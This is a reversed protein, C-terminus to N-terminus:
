RCSFRWAAGRGGIAARESVHLRSSRSALLQRLAAGVQDASDGVAIWGSPLECASRELRQAPTALPRGSAEGLDPPLAPAARRGTAMAFLPDNGTVVVADAPLTRGWRV